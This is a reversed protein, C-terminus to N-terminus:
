SQCEALRGVMRKLKLYLKGRQEEGVGRNSCGQALASLYHGVAHGAILDSEWGGYRVYPTRIGANEYFGALFRGDDLSLLYSIEKELANKLYGDEMVVSGFPLPSLVANKM